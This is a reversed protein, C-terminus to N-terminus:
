SILSTGAENSALKTTLNYLYRITAPKTVLELGTGSCVRWTSCCHMSFRDLASFDERQHSTTTLLPTGTLTDDADSSWPEFNRPGDGFTRM